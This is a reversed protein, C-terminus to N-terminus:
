TGLMRAVGEAALEGDREVPAATARRSDEDLGSLQSIVEAITTQGTRAAELARATLSRFGRGRAARELAALDGRRVADGLAADFELLEHVAIRGRYGSGNCFNCGRGAVFGAGALEAAPATARLWALEHADPQHPAACDPCVRRVLRQALV